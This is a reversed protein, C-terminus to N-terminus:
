SVEVLVHIHPSTCLDPAAWGGGQRWREGSFFAARLDPLSGFGDSLLSQCVRSATHVMCRRSADAIRKMPLSDNAQLLRAM